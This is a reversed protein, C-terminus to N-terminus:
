VYALNTNNTCHGSLKVRLTSNKINYAKSADKCSDFYIGTSLDAVLKSNHNDTGSYKGFRTGRSKYIRKKSQRVQVHNRGKSVMDAYNDKYTGLFLHDPNVCKRNDCTHCVLLGTPIDGKHLLYSVRHADVTKGKFKMAGYGTKGRKAAIWNWCGNAAILYKSNFLDM